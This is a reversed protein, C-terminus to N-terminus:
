NFPLLRSLMLSDTTSVYMGLQKKCISNHLYALALNKSNSINKSYFMVQKNTMGVAIQIKNSNIVENVTPAFIIEDSYDIAIQKKLHERSIKNIANKGKENLYLVIHDGNVSDFDQVVNDICTLDFNNSSYSFLNNVPNHKLPCGFRLSDKGLESLGFIQFASNQSNKLKEIIYDFDSIASDFKKLSEYAMGRWLYLDFHDANHKIARTLVNISGQYDKIQYKAKGLYLLSARSSNQNKANEFDDTAGRYDSNYYKIVGNKFYDVPKNQCGIITLTVLYFLNKLNM